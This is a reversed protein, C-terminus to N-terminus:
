WFYAGGEVRNMWEPSRLRALEKFCMWLSASRSCYLSSLPSRFHKKRSGMGKWFVIGLFEVLASTVKQTETNTDALLFLSNNAKWMFNSGSSVTSAKCNVVKRKEPYHSHAFGTNGTYHRVYQYSKRQQQQGFGEWVNWTSHEIPQKEVKSDTREVM